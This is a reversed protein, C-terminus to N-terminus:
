KFKAAHGLGFFITIPIKYEKSLQKLKKEANSYFIYFRRKNFFIEKLQKLIDIDRLVLSSKTLIEV